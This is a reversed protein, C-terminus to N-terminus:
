VRCFLTMLKYQMCTSSICVHVYLCIKIYVLSIVNNHALRYNKFRDPASFLKEMTKTQRPPASKPIKIWSQKVDTKSVNKYRNYVSDFIKYLSEIIINNKLLNWSFTCSNQVNTFYNMMICLMYQNQDILLQPTSFHITYKSNLVYSYLNAASRYLEVSFFFNVSLKRKLAVFKCYVKIQKGMSSIAPM